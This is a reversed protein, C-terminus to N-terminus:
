WDPRFDFILEYQDLMGEVTDFAERAVPSAMASLRIGGVINELSMYVEDVHKRVYAAESERNLAEFFEETEVLDKVLTTDAEMRRLAANVQKYTAKKSAGFSSPDKAMKAARPSGARQEDSEEPRTRNKTPLPAGSTAAEEGGGGETETGVTDIDLGRETQEASTSDGIPTEGEAGEEGEGEEGEGGPSPSLSAEGKQAAMFNALEPPIPHNHKKLEEYARKMTQSESIFKQIRESSRRELEEEFDIPINVALTGDSIPVGANKLTQM